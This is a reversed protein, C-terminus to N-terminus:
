GLNESENDAQEIAIEIVSQMAETIAREITWSQCHRIATMIDGNCDIGLENHMEDLYEYNGNTSFWSMLDHNYINAQMSAFEFVMDTVTDTDYEKGEENWDIYQDIFENCWDRIQSGDYDYNYDFVPMQEITTLLQKRTVTTTM